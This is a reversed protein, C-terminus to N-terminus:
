RQSSAPLISLLAQLANFDAGNREFLSAKALASEASDPADTWGGSSLENAVSNAADTSMPVILWRYAPRNTQQWSLYRAEGPALWESPISAPTGIPFRAEWVLRDQLTTLRLHHEANLPLGLRLELAPVYVQMHTNLSLHSRLVGDVGSRREGVLSAWWQRLRPVSRSKSLAANPYGLPPGDSLVPASVGQGTDTTWVARAQGALLRLDTCNDVWVVPALVRDNYGIRADSTGTVICFAQATGVVASALLFGQVLKLYALTPWM